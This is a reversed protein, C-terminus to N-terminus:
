ACDPTRVARKIREFEAVHAALKDKDCHPCLSRIQRGTAGTLWEQTTRCRKCPWAFNMRFHPRLCNGSANPLAGALRAFDTIAFDPVHSIDVEALSALRELPRLGDRAPRVGRLTLHGLERLAALPELTDVEICRRSSDWSAPTSISLHRLGTLEGIPALSTLKPAHNMVLCELRALSQLGRLSGTKLSSLELIRLAALGALFGLDPGTAGNLRLVELRHLGAIAAQTKRGADSLWIGELHPFEAIRAITQPAGSWAFILRATAPDAEGEDVWSSKLFAYEYAGATM